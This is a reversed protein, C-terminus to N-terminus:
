VSGVVRGARKDGEQCAQPEKMERKLKHKGDTGHCQFRSTALLQGPPPKAARANARAARLPPHTPSCIPRPGTGVNPQAAM